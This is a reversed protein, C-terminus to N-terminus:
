YNLSFRTLGGIVAIWAIALLGAAVVCTRIRLSRGAKLQTLRWASWLGLGAAAFALIGALQMARVVPDLQTSYFQLDVSLVPRIIIFWATVYLLDYAAALRVFLRLRRVETVIKEPVATPQKLFPSLM